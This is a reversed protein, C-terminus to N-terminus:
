DGSPPEVDSARDGLAEFRVRVLIDGDNCLDQPFADVRTGFRDDFTPPKGGDDDGDFGRGHVLLEADSFECHFATGSGPDIRTVPALPLTSVHTWAGHERHDAVAACIIATGRLMAAIQVRVHYEYLTHNVIVASISDPGDPRQAQLEALAARSLMGERALITEVNFFWAYGAALDRALRPRLLRVPLIDTLRFGSSDRFTTASTLWPAGDVYYSSYAPDLAELRAHAFLRGAKELWTRSAAELAPVLESPDVIAHERGDVTIEPDVSPGAAMSTIHPALRSLIEHCNRIAIPVEFQLPDDFAQIWLVNTALKATTKTKARGTGSSASRYRQRAHELEQRALPPLKDVSVIMGAPQFGLRAHHLSQASRRDEILWLAGPLLMVGVLLALGVVFRRRSDRPM